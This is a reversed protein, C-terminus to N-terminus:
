FSQSVTLYFIPQDGVEDLRWGVDMGVLFPRVGFSDFEFRVGYGTGTRYDAIRFLENQEERTVGAELFLVGQIKRIWGVWFFNLNLDHWLMHRYEWRLVFSQTGLAEREPVGRVGTYGGASYRRQAPVNGWSLGGRVQFALVHERLPAYLWRVDWFLRKFTFDTGFVMEAAEFSLRVYTGSHPNKRDIRTDLVYYLLMSTVVLNDSEEEEMPGEAMAFERHLQEMFFFAGIGQKFDTRDLKMNFARFYGLSSGFGRKNYFYTLHVQNAYDGSIIGAFGGFLELSLRSNGIPSELEWELRPNFATVLLKPKRPVRNDTKNTERNRGSPDLVMGTWDGPYIFSDVTKRGKVLVKGEFKRGGECKVGLGLVEAFDGGGDRFIEVTIRYRDDALKESKVEGVRYNVRPYGERWQRTFWDFKEGSVESLAMELTRGGRWATLVAKMAGKGVVDAAKEIIIRGFPTRNNYRLIGERQQETKFFTDFFVDNFPFRPAVLTQDIIPIFSFTSMVDTVESFDSERWKLYKRLHTWAVGEAVWNWDRQSEKSKAEEVALQYFAEFAVERLHYDRLDIPYPLVRLLRDSLLGVGDGHSALLTRSHSEMFVLRKARPPGIHAAHFELVKAAERCVRRGSGSSRGLRYYHVPTGSWQSEYLHFTEAFALTLFRADGSFEAAGSSEVHNGNIVAEWDKPKDIVADFRTAPPMSQVVWGDDPDLVPLYPYWGGNLITASDYHGFTGYKRPVITKFEM